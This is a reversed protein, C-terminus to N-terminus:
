VNRKNQKEVIEALEKEARRILYDMKDVKRQSEHMENILSCRYKKLHHILDDAHGLDLLESAEKCQEHDCGLNSLDAIMTKLDM